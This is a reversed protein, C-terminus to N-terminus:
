LREREIAEGAFTSHLLMDSTIEVAREFHTSLVKVYFVTQERDTFANMQGGVEDAAQAIELATRKATGKFFLHELFHSIGHLAPPEYRSGANVWIGMAATRVHPMRETVIRLGTPLVSKAIEDRM